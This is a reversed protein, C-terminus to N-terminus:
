ACPTRSGLQKVLTQSLALADAVDRLRARIAKEYQVLAIDRHATNVEVGARLHGAQFIPISTRPIFSWGFNGSDLLGSLESSSTGASATLSIM